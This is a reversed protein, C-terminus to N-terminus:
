TRHGSQRYCPLAAEKPLPRWYPRSFPPQGHPLSGQSSFGKNRRKMTLSCGIERNLRPLDLRAMEVRFKGEGLRGGESGKM